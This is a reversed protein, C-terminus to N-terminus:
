PYAFHAPDNKKTREEENSIEQDLNAAMREFAAITRQILVIRREESVRKSLTAAEADRASAPQGQWPITAGRSSQNPVPAVSGFISLAMKTCGREFTVKPWVLSCLQHWGRLCCPKRGYKAKLARNYQLRKRRSHSGSGTKRKTGPENAQCSKSTMRRR